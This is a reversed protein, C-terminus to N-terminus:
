GEEKVVITSFSGISPIYKYYLTNEWGDAIHYDFEFSPWLVRKALGMRKGSSKASEPSSQSFTLSPSIEKNRLLGM